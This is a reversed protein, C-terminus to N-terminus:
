FLLKSNVANNNGKFIHPVTILFRSDFVGGQEIQLKSTGLDIRSLALHKAIPLDAKFAMFLFLRKARISNCSELLSQMIHPRLSVLGTVINYCEEFGQYSPILYCAELIALEPASIKVTYGGCDFNVISENVSTHENSAVPCSKFIVKGFNTKKFWSPLQVSVDPKMLFIDSFGLRINHALGQLELSSRAGIHVPLALQKQLAYVAGYVQVDDSYRKVAGKDIREFWKSAVYKSLLQRSVGFEQLWKTTIVIHAPLRILLDNIKVMIIGELLKCLVYFDWRICYPIFKKSKANILSFVIPAGM